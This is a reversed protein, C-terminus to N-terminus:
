QNKNLGSDGVDPLTCYKKEKSKFNLSDRNRGVLLIHYRNKSLKAILYLSSYSEKNENDISYGEMCWANSIYKQNLFEVGYSSAKVTFIKDFTESSEKDLNLNGYFSDSEVDTFINIDISNTPFFDPLWSYVGAHKPIDKFSNYNFHNNRSNINVIFFIILSLPITALTYCMTKNKM